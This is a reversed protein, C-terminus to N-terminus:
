KEKRSHYRERNIVCKCYDCNRRKPGVGGWFYVWKEKCRKCTMILKQPQIGKKIYPHSIQFNILAEKKRKAKCSM